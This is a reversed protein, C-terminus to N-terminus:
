RYDKPDIRLLTFPALVTAYLTGDQAMTLAMHHHLPTLTKDPLRHYGNTWPKPKGDKQPSFDFFDPNRVALVGHDRPKKAAPDYSVLHHLFGTGFKTENDVRYLAYVKGDHGVILSGRSDFGKGQILRGLDAVPVKPGDAALDLRFLRSDSMRVLYAAKGDGTLVLM